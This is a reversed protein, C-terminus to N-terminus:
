GLNPHPFAEDDVEPAEDEDFVEDEDVVEELVAFEVRYVRGCGRCTFEESLKISRAWLQCPECYASTKNEDSASRRWVAKPGPVLRHVILSRLGENNKARKSRPSIAMSLKFDEDTLRDL